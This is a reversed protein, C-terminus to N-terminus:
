AGGHALDCAAVESGCSPNSAAEILKSADQLLRSMLQEDFSPSLWASDDVQVQGAVIWGRGVAMEQAALSHLAVCRKAPVESATPPIVLQKGHLDAWRLGSESGRMNDADRPKGLEANNGIVWCRSPETLLYPNLVEFQSLLYAMSWPWQHRKFIHVRLFAHTTDLLRGSGLLVARV